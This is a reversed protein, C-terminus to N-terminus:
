KMAIDDNIEIIKDVIRLQTADLHECLCAHIIELEATEKEEASLYLSKLLLFLDSNNAFLRNSHEHGNKWYSQCNKSLFDKNMIALLVQYIEIDLLLKELMPEIIPDITVADMTKKEMTILLAYAGPFDNTYLLCLFAKSLVQNTLFVDKPILLSASKLHVLADSFLGRVMLNDALIILISCAMPVFGAQEYIQMNM